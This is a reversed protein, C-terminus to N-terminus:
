KKRLDEVKKFTNSIELMELKQFLEILAINVADSNTSFRKGEGMNQSLKEIVYPSLTVTLAPKIRSM